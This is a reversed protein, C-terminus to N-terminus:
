RAKAAMALAAAIEDAVQQSHQALRAGGLRLVGSEKAAETAQQTANLVISRYTLADAPSKQSVLAVAERLEGLIRQRSPADKRLQELEARDLSSAFATAALSSPLVCKLAQSIAEAAASLEKVEGLFGSPSASVILYVAALPAMRVKEWEAGSFRNRIAAAKDGAALASTVLGAVEKNGADTMFEDSEAKLLSALGSADLNREKVTKSLLGAVLPAALGVLPRVDRDLKQTLTGAMATVGPGLLANTLDPQSGAGESLANMQNRLLDSCTEQQLIKLLASAGRSTEATRTLGCLVLPGVAGLGKEVVSPDVGIAKGVKGLVESTLMSGLSDLVAAMQGKELNFESV